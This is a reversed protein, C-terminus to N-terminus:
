PYIFTYDFMSSHVTDLFMSPEGVRQLHLADGGPAGHSVFLIREADVWVVSGANDTDTLKVPQEGLMALYPVTLRGDPSLNLLFHQSDPAWGMFNIAPYTATVYSDYLTDRGDPSVVHVDVPEHQFYLYVVQRGDPALNAGYPGAYSIQKVPDGALPIFWVTMSDPSGQPGTASAIQFGSSDPKWIIEPGMMTYGFGEPYQFVVRAGSGDRHALVLENPHYLVMWQGDPSFSFFGGRGAGFVPVPSGGTAEVRHLDYQDTVVYLTHSAPAFDFAVIKGAPQLNQLYDQGVLLRPSTGDTNIAFLGYTGSSNTGLSVIVQGDASIRVQEANSEVLQRSGQGDTWLTVYGDKFYVVRLVSPMSTPSSSTGAPSACVITVEFTKEPPVDTEFSRHYILKLGAQGTKVAQFKFTIKGGAGPAKSDPVAEPEGIQQLIAPSQPLMEWNYGTTINGELTVTLIDGQKLDIIKGADAETLTPSSAPLPESKSVPQPLATPSVATPQIPALPFTPDSVQQLSDQAQGCGALTLFAIVLILFWLIRTLHKM